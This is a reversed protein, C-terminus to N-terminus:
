KMKKELQTVQNIYDGYEVLKPKTEGPAVPVVGEQAQIKDKKATM